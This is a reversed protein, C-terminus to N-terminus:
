SVLELCESVKRDRLEQMYYPMHALLLLSVLVLVFLYMSKLLILFNAPLVKECPTGPTQIQNNTQGWRPIVFGLPVVIGTFSKGSQIMELPIKTLGM